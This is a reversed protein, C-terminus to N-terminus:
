LSNKYKQYFQQLKEKQPNSIEQGKLFWYVRRSIIFDADLLPMSNKIVIKSNQNKSQMLDLFFSVEQFNKLSSMQNSLEDLYSKQPKYKSYQLSRIVALKQAKEGKIFIKKTAKFYVEIPSKELYNFTSKLLM